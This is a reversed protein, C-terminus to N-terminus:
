YLHKKLNLFEKETLDNIDKTVKGDERRIAPIDYRYILKTAIRSKIKEFAKNGAEDNDTAIILERCPLKKLMEIQTDSGTGNLAIAYKKYQWCTLADLMSECVIISDPFKMGTEKVFLKIEWLGYLPKEVDRPYNFYKYKVSRRAVFLCNGNEDKVPFTICSTNPDYGLDFLEKLEYSTIGRKKWYSHEYRYSDLEEESVYNRVPEDKQKDRSLDLELEKREELTVTAFNKLLWQWGFKGLIDEDHGFCHTIFEPLTHVENCTFCHFKADTERIGASRNKEQGGNHYPCQIQLSNGSRKPEKSLYPIGNIHLETRLEALIDELNVYFPVENIIM